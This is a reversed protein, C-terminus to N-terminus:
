SLIVSAQGYVHKFHAAKDRPVTRESLHVFYCYGAHIDQGLGLTQLADRCGQTLRQYGETENGERLHREFDFLAKRFAERNERAYAVLAVRDRYICQAECFTCGPFPLFRDAHDRRFGTMHAQVQDNEVRDPLEGEDPYKNVHVFTPKEYGETFFAAWGPELKAIYPEQEEGLSMAAGIVRRDDEGPLQHVIKVNTNKVADDALHRPIQEAIVIGEGYARIESLMAAFMSVAAAATAPAAEPDAPRTARAMVRHAEEIITVHQLRRERRTTRMYEYLMTLLFLMVLAKEEDNLSELELITPRTTLVDMPISRPVNLMQGKSGLLFPKIRGSAAARVDQMTREQYGREEAVRLIERYLEDLTPMPRADDLVGEDIFRWRKRSYIRYLSEEVLSPLIGFTPLAATFAAKLYSIHREVRVNPMIELPNLRFPSVVEDGLTFIQLDSGIESGLLTRYETKAPEIVLTPIGQKWLEVLMRICTTTKGSGTTGAVLVHRNVARLPLHVESGRGAFTGLTISEQPKEHPVVEFVPLPQKVRIGPIGGRVAIPFRFAASARRADALYRLREKGESAESQGWHRLELEVLTRRAKELETADDPIIVDFGAPLRADGQAAEALGATLTIEAGVVQALAWATQLEQERSAIQVVVHFPRSLSVLLDAYLCSVVSAHPDRATVRMTGMPGRLEQEKGTEALKAAEALANRETETLSTPELHLSILCPIQQRLLAEFIPIWTTTPAQFPYVVYAPGLFLLPIINEQQRIEVVRLNPFPKIFSSLEEEGIPEIPYGFSELLGALDSAIAEGFVRGQGSPALTRALFAIKVEGEGPYLYRLAFAGGQWKWLNAVLRAQHELVEQLREQDTAGVRHPSALFDPIYPIRFGLLARERDEEQTYLVYPTTRSTM